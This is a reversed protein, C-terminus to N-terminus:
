KVECKELVEMYESGFIKVYDARGAAVAKEGAAGLQEKLERSMTQWLHATHFNFDKMFRSGFKRKKTDLEEVEEPTLSEGWDFECREGGWSMTALPECKFDPRFGRYVADDIVACYYKGYEMMDHKKWAECWACKSIYTVLTPETQVRGFEMQGPYEPRWEGYAQNNLLSLEDRNARANAAMRAGREEGYCSAAALVAAKGEEGCQEIAQRALCAFLIAHHEIGCNCIKKM